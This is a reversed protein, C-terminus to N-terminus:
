ENLTLVVCRLDIVQKGSVEVARLTLPGRGKELTLVGLRLPKFDKMYSEGVRPVRDHEAGQLPPDNAESVRGQLRSGNLSLEITSGIDAANCTYYLVVEYRGSTAVEVDWTIRDDTSTLYRDYHGARRPFVWSLLASRATATCLAFEDEAPLPFGIRMNDQFRRRPVLLGGLRAATAETSLFAHPYSVQYWNPFAFRDDVALLNQLHTTGSRWIGLVFLPPEVETAAIGPGHAAEERWRALSNGLSGLTNVAARLWYARDVAFHNERLLAWWDRFTIGALISPGLWLYLRNRWTM